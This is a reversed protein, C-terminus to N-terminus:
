GRVSDPIGKYESKGFGLIMTFIPELFFLGVAFGNGHGFAKSMRIAKLLGIVTTVASAAFSIIALVTNQSQSTYGSIATCIVTIWFISGSWCISYSTYTNLIPIWAKWGAEGAKAFVKMNAVACLVYWAIVAVIIVALFAGLLAAVSEAASENM